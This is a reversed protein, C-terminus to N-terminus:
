QPTVKPLPPNETENIKDEHEMGLKLYYLIRATITTPQGKAWRTSRRQIENEIDKSIEILLLRNVSGTSKPTPKNETPM